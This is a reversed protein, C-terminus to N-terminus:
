FLAPKLYRLFEARVDRAHDRVTEPTWNAPSIPALYDVRVRGPRVLLSGMPSVQEIGRMVLPIVPAGTEIALHFAGLKFEQLGGKRSRTGEPAIMLTSETERIRRAAEAMTQLAREQNSRDVPICDLARLARGLGPVRKFEQKYIVVAHDPANASLVFLDLISVHNFLLLKAGPSELHEQGHVEVHIGHWKLPWRGWLRVLSWGHQRFWGRAVGAVIAIMLACGIAWLFTLPACVVGRLRSGAHADFPEIPEPMGWGLM